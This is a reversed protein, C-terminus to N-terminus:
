IVRIHLRRHIIMAASFTRLPICFGWSYFSIPLLMSMLVLAYDADVVGLERSKASLHQNVLLTNLYSSIQKPARVLNPPGMFPCLESPGQRLSVANKM